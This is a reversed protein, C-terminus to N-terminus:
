TKILMFKLNIVIPLYELSSTFLKHTLFVWTGSLPMM